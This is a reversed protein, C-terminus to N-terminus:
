SDNEVVRASSMAACGFGELESEGRLLMWPADLEEVNLFQEIRQVQNAAGGAQAYLVGVICDEAFAPGTERRLEQDQEFSRDTDAVGRDHRQQSIMPRLVRRVQRKGHDGMEVTLDSFAKLGHPFHGACFRRKDGQDRVQRIVRGMEPDLPLRLVDDGPRIASSLLGQGDTKWCIM